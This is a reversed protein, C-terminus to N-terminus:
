TAVVAIGALIVPRALAGVGASAVPALLTRWEVSGTESVKVAWGYKLSFAPCAIGRPVGNLNGACGAVVLVTVLLAIARRVMAILRPSLTPRKKAATM